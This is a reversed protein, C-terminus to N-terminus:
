EEISMILIWHKKTFEYDRGVWFLLITKENEGFYYYWQSTKWFLLSTAVVREMSLIGCVYFSPDWWASCARSGSFSVGTNWAKETRKRWSHTLLCVTEVHTSSIYRSVWIRRGNASVQGRNRGNALRQGPVYARERFCTSFSFNSYNCDKWCWTSMLLLEMKWEYRM